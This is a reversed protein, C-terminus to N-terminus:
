WPAGETEMAFPSDEAMVASDEGPSADRANFNTDGLGVLEAFARSLADAQDLYDGNPFNSLEDLFAENWDGEILHVNGVEAQASVPEARDPKSGSEPTARVVYGALQKVLYQAQMKGSQGPDQPISIRVNGYRSVDQAATNRILKEVDGASGRERRVDAVYYEGGYRGLLVGATYAATSSKTAALDWGRVWRCGAPAARVVDFWHRKFMGGERPAPRQQMQGAWAYATMTSRDREIVEQPWRAPCMLEGDHTRPDIDGLPTVCRREPEFEMPIMLHVYGAKIAEASIDKSHMREMIVIIASKEPDNIRQPISERFIRIANDREADSEATETTHPNDILVRDGRGGTLSPFPRGDREGRATNSYRKEGSGVIEVVDGWRRQYWESTVLVRMRRCDRNTFNQSHSTSLYRLHPLGAPGWEWAPYMVSVILSKSSGPPVNMLLRNFRGYTVAELHACIADIHWGDIYPTSPELVHWAERVFGALTRCRARSGEIDREAARRAKEAAIQAPTPIQATSSEPFGSM